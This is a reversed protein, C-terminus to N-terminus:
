ITQDTLEVKLPDLCSSDVLGGEAHRVLPERKPIASSGGEREPLLGVTEGVLGVSELVRAM